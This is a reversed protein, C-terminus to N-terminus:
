GMLGMLGGLGALAWGGGPIAALMSAPLMGGLAGGTLAGGLAGTLANGGGGETSTQGGNVPIGNIASVYNQLNQEPRNQYFNFRDMYDQLVQGSKGEVQQGIQGLQAINQWDNQGLQQGLQAGAMQQAASQQGLSGYGSALSTGLSGLGGAASLQRDRESQYNGGYIQAAMDGMANGYNENAMNLAQNHAYSGTRGGSGFTANVGPMVQNNYQTNLGRGAAGYMADLYPNSNLYQGNATGALQQMGLSGGWLSNMGAQLYPSNGSMAGMAVNAAPQDFESGFLARNEGLQMAMQSQPSFQTYTANPYYEPGGSNLLNQAQQFGATLYPQQGSWPETKTTQNGSSSKGGM